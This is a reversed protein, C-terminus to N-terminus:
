HSRAMRLWHSSPVGTRFGTKGSDLFSRTAADPGNPANPRLESLKQQVSDEASGPLVTADTAATVGEESSSASSERHGNESTAPESASAASESSTRESALAKTATQESVSYSTSDYSAAAAPTNRTPLPPEMKRDWSMLAMDYFSDVIPGELHTMMELNDNDMINNSQLIAIKRDVVMYKAHFTGFIPQHYNMVELSINPIDQLAPLGVGKGAFESESVIHHPDVVQKAGARDYMVKVVVRAGRQGARRNLERIANTIYRSAVGRQWFNTAFFVEKDANAIVNAM